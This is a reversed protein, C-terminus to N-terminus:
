PTNRPSFSNSAHKPYLSPHPSSRDLGMSGEQGGRGPSPEGQLQAASRPAAVGDAWPQRSSPQGSRARLSGQVAWGRRARGRGLARPGKDEKTASQLGRPMAPRPLPTLGGRQPLIALVSDGRTLGQWTGWSLSIVLLPRCPSHARPVHPRSREPQPMPRDWCGRHAGRQWAQACVWEGRQGSPRPCQSSWWKESLHDRRGGGRTRGERGPARHAEMQSIYQILAGPSGRLRSSATARAVGRSCLTPASWVPTWPLRGERPAAPPDPQPIESRTM